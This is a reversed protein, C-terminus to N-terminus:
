QAWKPATKSLTFTYKYDLVYIFIYKVIIKFVPPHSHTSTLMCSQIVSCAEETKPLHWWNPREPRTKHQQAQQALNKMVFFLIIYISIGLSPNAKRLNTDPVIYSLFLFSFLLALCSQERQTTGETGEKTPNYRGKNPQVQEEDSRTTTWRDVWGMNGFHFHWGFAGREIWGKGGGHGLPLPPM